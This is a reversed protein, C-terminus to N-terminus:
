VHDKPNRGAVPAPPAPEPEPGVAAAGVGSAAQLAIVARMAKQQNQWYIARRRIAGPSTPYLIM